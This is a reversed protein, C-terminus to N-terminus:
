TQSREGMGAKVKIQKRKKWPTHAISDMANTLVVGAQTFYATRQETDLNNTSTHMFTGYLFFVINPVSM